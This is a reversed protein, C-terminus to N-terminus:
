PIFPYATEVDAGSISPAIEAAALLPAAQAQTLGIGGSAIPLTWIARVRADAFDIGPAGPLMWKAVRAVIPNQAAVAEIQQLVVEGTTADPYIAMVSLETMYTSTLVKPAIVMCRTACQDAAGAQALALAQIDSEILTRLDQPIM